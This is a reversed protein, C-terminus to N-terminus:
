YHQTRLDRRPVTLLENQIGTNHEKSSDWIKWPTTHSDVPTMDSLTKVLSSLRRPLRPAIRSLVAQGTWLQCHWWPFSPEGSLAAPPPAPPPASRGPRSTSGSAPPRRHRGGSGWWGPCPRACVWPLTVQLCPEIRNKNLVLNFRCPSGNLQAGEKIKKSCCGM